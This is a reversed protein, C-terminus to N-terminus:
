NNQSLNQMVKEMVEDKNLNSTDIVLDYYDPKYFDPFNFQAEMKRMWNNEKKILRQASKEVSINERSANREVRTQEDATLLVKLTNPWLQRIHEFMRVEILVPHENTLLNIVRQGIQEGMLPEHPQMTEQNAGQLGNILIYDRLFQSTSFTPWNLKEQLNWFLTTKGTNRRGSLVIKSIPM